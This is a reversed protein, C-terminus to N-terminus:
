RRNVRRNPARAYWARKAEEFALNLERTRRESIQVLEPALGALRDPHYMQVKSLYARRIEDLGAEPNAELVEWWEHRKKREGRANHEIFDKQPRSESTARRPFHREIKTIWLLFALLLPLIWLARIASWFEILESGQLFTALSVVIIFAILAFGVALSGLLWGLISQSRYRSPRARNAAATSMISAPLLSLALVLSEASFSALLGVIGVILSTSLGYLFTRKM